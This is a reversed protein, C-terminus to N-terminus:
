TGFDPPARPLSGIPTTSTAGPGGTACHGTAAEGLGARRGITTITHAEMAVPVPSSGSSALQPNFLNGIREACQAPFSAGPNFLGFYRPNAMQVIGHEM